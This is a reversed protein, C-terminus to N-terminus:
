AQKDKRKAGRLVAAAAAAEDQGAARRDDFEDPGAQAARAADGQWPAAEVRTGPPDSALATLESASHAHVCIPAGAGVENATVTAFSAMGGSCLGTEIVVTAQDTERALLWRRHWGARCARHGARYVVDCRVARWGLTEVSRVLEPRPWKLM